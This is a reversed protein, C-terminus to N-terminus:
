IEVSEYPKENLIKPQSDIKIPESQQCLDDFTIPANNVIIGEKTEEENNYVVKIDLQM